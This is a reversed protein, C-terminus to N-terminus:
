WSVRACGCEGDDVAGDGGGAVDGARRRFAEGVGDQAAIQALARRQL